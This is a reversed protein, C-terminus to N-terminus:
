FITASFMQDIVKLEMTPGLPSNKFDGMELDNFYVWSRLFCNFMYRLGVCRVSRCAAPVTADNAVCCIGTSKAVHNGAEHALITAM